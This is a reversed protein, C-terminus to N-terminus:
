VTRKALFTNGM